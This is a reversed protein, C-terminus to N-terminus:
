EVSALLLLVRRRQEDAAARAREAYAEMDEALAQRLNPMKRLESRILPVVIERDDATRVKFTRSLKRTQREAEDDDEPEPAAAAAELIAELDNTLLDYRRGAIEIAALRQKVRDPDYARDDSYRSTKEIYPQHYAGGGAGQTPQTVVVAIGSFGQVAVLRPTFGVGQLAIARASLTV